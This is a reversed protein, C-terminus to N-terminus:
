SYLKSHSGISVFYVFSESIEEYVARMDGTIDISKFNKFKGHLKHGNLVSDNKNKSFILLSEDFRDKISTPLKKYQKKFKSSFSVQM